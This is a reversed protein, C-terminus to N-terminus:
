KPIMTILTDAMGPNKDLYSTLQLLKDWGISDKIRVMHNQLVEVNKEENDTPVQETTGSITLRTPAPAAPVGSLGAAQGKGNMSAQVQFMRMINQMKKDDIDMFMGALPAYRMPDSNTAEDLQKQLQMEKKFNELNLNMVQVQALLMAHSESIYGPPINGM